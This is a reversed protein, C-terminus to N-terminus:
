LPGHLLRLPSATSRASFKPHSSLLFDGLECHLNHIEFCDDINLRPAPSPWGTSGPVDTRFCFSWLFGLSAQLLEQLGIPLRFDNVSNIGQFKAFGTFIKGPIMARRCWVSRFCFPNSLSCYASHSFTRRRCQHLWTQIFTPPCIRHFTVSM